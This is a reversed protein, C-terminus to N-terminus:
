IDSEKSIFVLFAAFKFDSYNKRMLHKKFALCNTLFPSRRRNRNNTTSIVTFMLIERIHIEKFNEKFNELNAAWAPKAAKKAKWCRGTDRYDCHTNHWDYQYSLSFQSKRLKKSAFTHNEGFHTNNLAYNLGAQSIKLKVGPNTADLVGPMLVLIVAYLVVEKAM